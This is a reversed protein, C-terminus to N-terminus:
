PRRRAGMPRFTSDTGPAAADAQRVLQAAAAGPQCLCRQRWAVAPYRRCGAGLWAAGGPVAPGTGAQSSGALRRRCRRGDHTSLHGATFLHCVFARAAQLACPHIATSHIVCQRESCGAELHMLRCRGHGGWIGWAWYGCPRGAALWRCTLLRQRSCRAWRPPAYRSCCTKCGLQPLVRSSVAAAWSNCRSSPSPRTRLALQRWSSRYHKRPIALTLWPCCCITAQPLPQVTLAEAQRLVGLTGGVITTHTQALGYICSGLTGLACLLLAAKLGRAGCGHLICRAAAAAAAPKNPAADRCRPRLLGPRRSPCCCAACSLALRWGVFVLLLLAALM